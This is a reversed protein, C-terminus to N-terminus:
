SCQAESDFIFIHRVLDAESFRELKNKEASGVAFLLYKIDTASNVAYFKFYAPAITM